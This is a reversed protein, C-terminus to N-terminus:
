AEQLVGTVVAGCEIGGVGVEGLAPIPAVFEDNLEVGAEGLGAAM